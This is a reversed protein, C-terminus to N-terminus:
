IPVIHKIRLGNGDLKKIQEAVVKRHCQEPNREYCLLSVTKGAYVLTHITELLDQRDAICKLYKEFFRSYNGSQYLEDRIEKPAGLGQFNQYEINDGNLMEKLATKSFGKKRSLPLKRVDVVMDIGNHVLNKIFRGSDLGEYGITYLVM